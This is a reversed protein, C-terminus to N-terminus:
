SPRNRAGVGIMDLNEQLRSAVASEWIGDISRTPPPTWSSSMSSRRDDDTLAGDKEM